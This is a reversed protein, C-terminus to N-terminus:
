NQFFTNVDLEALIRSFYFLCIVYILFILFPLLAATYKKIPKLLQKIIRDLTTCLKFGKFYTSMWDQNFLSFTSGLM